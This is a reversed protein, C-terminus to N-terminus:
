FDVPISLNVSVCKRMPFQEYPIAGRWLNHAESSLYYTETDEEMQQTLKTLHDQTLNMHKLILGLKEMHHEDGHGKLVHDIAHISWGKTPRLAYVIDEMVGAILPTPVHELVSISYICDINGPVDKLINRSFNDRIFQIHPYQEKFQQFEKPGNGTGDYPDVVTVDYGLQTLLNAILPEGAGIELLRSGRTVNGLIAKLVWPRQVDKMDRNLTSIAPLYDASDCYDKVTAYGLRPTSYDRYARYINEMDIKHHM